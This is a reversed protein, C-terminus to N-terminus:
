VRQDSRPRPLYGRAEAQSPAVGLQEPEAHQVPGLYHVLEALAAQRKSEQAQRRRLWRPAPTLASALAAVVTLGTGQDIHLKGAVTALASAVAVALPLRHRGCLAPPQAVLALAVAEGEDQNGARAGYCAQGLRIAPGNASQTRFNSYQSAIV